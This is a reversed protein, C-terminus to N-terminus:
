QKRHSTVTKLTLEAGLAMLKDHLSELNDELLFILQNSSMLLDGTDIEHQLFFTTVGTKTEGNIIAWNIPAAGRYQPLLVQM